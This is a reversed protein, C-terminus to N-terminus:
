QGGGFYAAYLECACEMRRCDGGDGMCPRVLGAARLREAMRAPIGGNGSIVRKMAADLEPEAQFQRRYRELHDQFVGDGATAADFLRERGAADRRAAHHLLFHVPFPRGGLYRFIRAAMKEGTMPSEAPFGMAVALVRIDTESFPPLSLPESINFPSQLPDAIFFSPESSSAILWRVRRWADEYAGASHFARVHGFFSTAFECKLLIDAEDLCLLLPHDNAAGASFVHHTLFDSMNQDIDAEPNWIEPIVAALGLRRAMRRAVTHWAADADALDNPGFSQFNIMVPRLPADAAELKRFLRVM